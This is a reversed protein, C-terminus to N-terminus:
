RKTLKTGEGLYGGRPSFMFWSFIEVRRVMRVPISHKSSPAM